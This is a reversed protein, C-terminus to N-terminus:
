YTLRNVIANLVKVMSFIYIIVTYELQITLSNAPQLTNTTMCQLLFTIEFVIRNNQCYHM